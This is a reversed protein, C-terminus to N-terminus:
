GAPASPLVFRSGIPVPPPPNQLPLALVYTYSHSFFCVPDGDLKVLGTAYQKYRPGKGGNDLGEFLTTNSNPIEGIKSM